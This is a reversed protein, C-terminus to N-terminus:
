HHLDCLRILPKIPSHFSPSLLSGLRARLLSLSPALSPSPSAQALGQPIGGVQWNSETAVYKSMDRMPEPPCWGTARWIKPLPRQTEVASLDVSVELSKTSVDSQAGTVSESLLMAVLMVMVMVM